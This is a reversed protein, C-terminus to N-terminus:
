VAVLRFRRRSPQKELILPHQAGIKKPLLSPVIVTKTNEAMIKENDADALFVSM